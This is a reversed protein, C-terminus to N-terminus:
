YIKYQFFLNQIFLIDEYKKIQLLLCTSIGRDMFSIFTPIIMSISYDVDISYDLCTCCRPCANRRVCHEWYSMNAHFVNSFSFITYLVSSSGILPLSTLPAFHNVKFHSIKFMSLNQPTVIYCISPSTM